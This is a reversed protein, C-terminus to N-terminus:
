HKRVENLLEKFMLKYKVNLDNKYVEPDYISIKLRKRNLNVSKAFLESTQWYDAM